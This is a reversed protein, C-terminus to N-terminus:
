GGGHCCPAGPGIRAARGPPFPHDQPRRAPAVRRPGRLVRRGDGSRRPGARPLEGDGPGLLRQHERPRHEDDDGGRVAAARRLHFRVARSRGGPLRRPRTRTVEVGKPLGTSGSTYIVYAVDDATGVPEPNEVPHDDFDSDVRLARGSLEAAQGALAEDTLVLSAEADAQQYNLRELPHDPNLPLYAGGAKMVALVSVILELSRDLLISITTGPGIGEARLAHALRNARENLQAYTLSDEGLSVAPADPTRAATEEILVQAPTDGAPSSVGRGSLEELLNERQGSSLVGLQWAPATSDAEVVSAILSGLHDAIRQAEPESVLKDHRLTLEAGSPRSRVELSVQLADFNESTDLVEGNVGGAVFGDSADIFAFGVASPSASATRQEQDREAEGLERTM